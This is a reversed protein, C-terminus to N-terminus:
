VGGIRKAIRQWTPGHGTERWSNRERIEKDALAHAIEHLITKVVEWSDQREVHKYTLTILRKGYHCQGFRGAEDFDFAWRQLGYADMLSRAVKRCEHFKERNQVVGPTTNDSVVLKSYPVNWIDNSVRVKARKPNFKVVKGVFQEGRNDFRVEDGIVLGSRVEHASPLKIEPGIGPFMDTLDTM